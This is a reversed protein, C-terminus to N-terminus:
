SVDVFKAQNLQSIARNIDSQKLAYCIRILKEGDVRNAYFSRGTVVAVRAENLLFDAMEEDNNCGLGEFQTMLYYAGQPEIYKFGLARLATCISERKRAYSARMEEYYSQPLDLAALVAHQLPTVPCVYLYDQVLTMRGIIEAPGSVYGLRWGTMNYTKSFGSITITRKFHDELSALSVHEYGPYTIYEYIEDTIVYLNHKKAIAGISLLEAKTFVKGSPNNPTCVIIAKTKSNVAAELQTADIKLNQLDMAVIKVSIQNIELVHKHYGYFPEFLIVEDGPNFLTTIACVFAGTSGHTVMIETEPNVEIKNFTKLKHGLAQRLPLIGKLDSYMNHEPVSKFAAEQIAQPVPMNCVGQGLNVGDLQQCRLSANRIGSQKLFQTRASPKFEM